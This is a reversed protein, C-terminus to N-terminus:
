YLISFSPRFIIIYYTIHIRKPVIFSIPNGVNYNEAGTFVFFLVMLNLLNKNQLDFLCNGDNISYTYIIIIFFSRVNIRIFM